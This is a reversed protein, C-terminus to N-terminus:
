TRARASGREWGTSCGILREEAEPDRGQRRDAGEAGQGAGDAPAEPAQPGDQPSSAGPGRGHLRDSRPGERSRAGPGGGAHAVPGRPAAHRVGLHGRSRGEPIPGRVSRGVSGAGAGQPVRGPDHDRTGRGQLDGGPDDRVGGRTAAGEDQGRGEDRDGDAKEEDTPGTPGDMSDM